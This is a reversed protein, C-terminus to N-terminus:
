MTDAATYGTARYWSYRRSRQREVDTQGDTADLVTDFCGFM